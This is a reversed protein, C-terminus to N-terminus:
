MGVEYMAINNVISRKQGLCKALTLDFNAYAFTLKVLTLDFNVYTLNLTLMSHFNRYAKKEMNHLINLYFLKQFSFSHLVPNGEKPFQVSQLFNPAAL